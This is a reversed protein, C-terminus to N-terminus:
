IQGVTYPRETGKTKTEPMILTAVTTCSLHRDEWLSAATNSRVTGSCILAAEGCWLETAARPRLYDNPHREAM